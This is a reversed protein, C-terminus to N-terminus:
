VALLAQLTSILVREVESVSLRRHRRLCDISDLQTLLDGSSLVARREAAERTALEPAFQLEFQARLDNRHRALEDRVRSHRAANVVTARYEEGFMELVVDLVANVNRRRRAVRGDTTEAVEDLDTSDLATM